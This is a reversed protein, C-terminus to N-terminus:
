AGLAKCEVFSRHINSYKEMEKKNHLDQVEKGEDAQAQLKERHRLLHSRNTRGSNKRVSSAKTHTAETL